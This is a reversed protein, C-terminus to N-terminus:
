NDVSCFFHNLTIDFRINTQYCLISNTQIDVTM